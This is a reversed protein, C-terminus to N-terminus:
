SYSSEPLNQLHHELESFTSCVHRDILSPLQDHYFEPETCPTWFARLHDILSVVQVIQDVDFFLVKRHLEELNDQIQKALMVKFSSNGHQHKETDLYLNQLAFVNARFQRCIDLCDSRTAGDPSSETYYNYNRMLRKGTGLSMATVAAAFSLASSNPDLKAM